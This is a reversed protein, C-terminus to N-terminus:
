PVMIWVGLYLTGFIISFVVRRFGNRVKANTTPSTDWYEELGPWACQSATFRIKQFRFPVDVWPMVYEAAEWLGVMRTPYKSASHAPSISPRFDVDPYVKLSLLAAIQQLLLHAILSLITLSLCFVFSAYFCCLFGVEVLSPFNVVDAVIISHSLWLQMVKVWFGFYWAHVLCM